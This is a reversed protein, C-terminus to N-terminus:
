GAIGAHTAGQSLNGSVQIVHGWFLNGDHYTFEFLGDPNVVISELTMRQKFRRPTFEKEEEGLWLGNKLELLKQAAFDRVHKDWRKQGKWLREALEFLAQEDECGKRSLYLQIPQSNWDLTTEYLDLARNLTLTGLVPHAITVPKKLRRARANLDKDALETGILEMLEVRVVEPDPPRAPFRVRVRLVDYPKILATLERLKEDTLKPLELFLQQEEIQGDANRWPEFRFRLTWLEETGARGGGAGLPHVVGVIEV